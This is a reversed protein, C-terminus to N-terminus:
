QYVGHGRYCRMRRGEMEQGHKGRGNCEDRGHVVAHGVELEVDM